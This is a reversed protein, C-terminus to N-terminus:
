GLRNGRKRKLGRWLDALKVTIGTDRAELTGGEGTPVWVPSANRHFTWAAQSEPEIVWCYTVGQEHYLKCKNLMEEVTQDPLSVIEVCLVPWHAPMVYKWPEADEARIVAVDPRRWEDERIKALPDSLVYLDEGVQQNLLMSSWSTILAHYVSVTPKARLEGNVLEWEQGSGFLEKLIGADVTTSAM